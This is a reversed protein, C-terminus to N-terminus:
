KKEAAEESAALEADREEHAVQDEHEEVAAVLEDRAAIQEELGAEEEDSTGAGSRYSLDPPVYGAQPHGIPLTLKPEEAAAAKAAKKSEKTETKTSSESM